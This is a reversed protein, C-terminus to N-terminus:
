PIGLPAHAHENNGQSEDALRRMKKLTGLPNPQGFEIWDGPIPNDQGAAWLAVRVRNATLEPKMSSGLAALQLPRTAFSTGRKDTPSPCHPPKLDPNIGKPIGVPVDDGLAAIEGPSSIDAVNGDANTAAVTVWRAPHGRPAAYQRVLEPPLPSESILKRDNGAAMFILHMRM